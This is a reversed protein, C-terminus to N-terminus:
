EDKKSTVKHWVAFGVAALITFLTFFYRVDIPDGDYPVLILNSAFHIWMPVALNKCRNYCVGIIVALCLNGIIFTAIYVVIDLGLPGSVFWLPTHWFSWVLGVYYSGKIVGGAKKEMVPQLYGRKLQDYNTDDIVKTSAALIGISYIALIVLQIGLVIIAKIDFSNVKM